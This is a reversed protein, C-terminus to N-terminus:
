PSAGALTASIIKTPCNGLATKIDDLQTTLSSTPLPFVSSRGLTASINSLSQSVQSLHVDPNTKLTQNIETLQTNINDLGPWSTGGSGPTPTPVPPLTEGSGPTPTPTPREPDLTHHLPNLRYTKAKGNALMDPQLRVEAVSDLAQDAKRNVAAGGAAVATATSLAAISLLATKTLAPAPADKNVVLLTKVQETFVEANSGSLVTRFVKLIAFVLSFIVVGVLALWIVQYIIYLGSKEDLTPEFLPYLRYSPPTPKEVFKKELWQPQLNKSIIEFRRRAAQQEGDIALSVQQQLDRLKGDTEKWIAALDAPAAAGQKRSKNPTKNTSDDPTKYQSAAFQKSFVDAAYLRNKV